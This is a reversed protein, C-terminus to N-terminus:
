HRPGEGAPDPAPLAPAHLPLPDSRGAETETAAAVFALLGVALSRGEGDTAVIQTAAKGDLRDALEKIAWPEGAAAFDLLKEAAERLRKADDALMARELAALFRRQKREGSPNGSEGTKWVM